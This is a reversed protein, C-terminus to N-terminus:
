LPIALTFRAVSDFISEHLFEFGYKGGAVFDVQSLCKRRGNVSYFLDNGFFYPDYAHFLAIISFV